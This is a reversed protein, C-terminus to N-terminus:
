HGSTESRGAWWGSIHSLHQHMLAKAGEADGAEIRDLLLHHESASQDLQRSELMTVLGVLRTRSRLDAILQTLLPNALLDTLALHFERDAQLYAHLDSTTAGAVIADALARFRTMDVPIGSAALDRMASPELRQRVDLLQGLVEESVTTVRFGKNRVPTVFGRKELDLMAERVPTASMEYQAALTPVTLLSGPALEGSVIASSLAEEVQARLSLQRQIKSGSLNRM